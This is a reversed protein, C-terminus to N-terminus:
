ALEPLPAALRRLQDRQDALDVAGPRVVVVHRAGADRYRALGAVVDEPTGTM